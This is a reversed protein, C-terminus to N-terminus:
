PTQPQPDYKDETYHLALIWKEYRQRTNHPSYLKTETLIPIAFEPLPTQPYLQSPETQWPLHVTLSTLPLFSLAQSNEIKAAVTM